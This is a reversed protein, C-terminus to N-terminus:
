IVETDYFTLIADDSELLRMDMILGASSNLSSHVVYCNLDSSTVHFGADRLRALMRRAIYQPIHAGDSSCLSMIDVPAEVSIREHIDTAWSDHVIKSNEM